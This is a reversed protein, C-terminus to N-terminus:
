CGWLDHMTYFGSKKQSVFLAAKLAGRAFAQRSGAKHTLELREGTTGFIVTHEGVVDGTRIAHIGIESNKRPGARGHRGYVATETLNQERAKAVIEALNLATGSPADAKQNHHTEVIEVEYDPLNKATEETLHFLLNVGLSMNPSLLIPIKEGATKIEALEEQKFGTTGIVIGKRLKLCVKLNRLTGSPTTFDILVDGAELSKEVDSSIPIGPVSERNLNPHDPREVTGVLSLEPFEPLTNIITQGMRGAAGAVVIRVM